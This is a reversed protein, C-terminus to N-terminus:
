FIKHMFRRWAPLRAIEAKYANITDWDLNRRGTDVDIQDVTLWGSRKWFYGIIWFLMVVPLALYSKFFAEVGDSGGLDVADAIAGYLQFFDALM